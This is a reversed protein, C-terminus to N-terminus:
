NETYTIECVDAPQDHYKDKEDLVALLCGDQKCPCRYKCSTSLDSGTTLLDCSKIYQDNCTTSNKLVYM